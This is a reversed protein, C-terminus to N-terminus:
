IAEKVRKKGTVYEYILSKKHQQMLELAKQKESLIENIINCKDRLYRYIYEQEPMPIVPLYIDKLSYSYIVEITTANSMLVFQDKAFDSENFILKLLDPIMIQPDIRFRIICPHLIGEEAGKPVIAVKGITGRTTILMDGERVYFGKLEHYKEESVFTDAEEFNNDLVVRQNYVWKGENTFDNGALTSGFPGVRMNDTCKELMFKLRKLGWHEPIEGVWSIGSNKMPVSQDLGKTVTETIM